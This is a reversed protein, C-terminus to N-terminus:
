GAGWDARAGIATLGRAVADEDGEEVTGGVAAIARAYQAVLRPEGILHVVGPAALEARVEHGILLGSLYSASSTEDLRGALGLARVGFLHHLLGGPEGGRKLGWDFAPWDLPGPRMMRGLISHGRLVGFVEGSMHTAFRSIRGEACRVWKSHTGPLCVLGGGALGAALGVIKTEEGRMVDPVGERDEASVGPILRVHAREFPVAVIARALEKIGAPCPVYATERWGQRSGVMGCLLIREEGRAVWDGVEASLTEAFKGAEVQLIGRPAARRELIAGDVALLYARFNSTGWDVGIM